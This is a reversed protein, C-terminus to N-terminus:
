KDIYNKLKHRAVYQKTEEDYAWYNDKARQRNIAMKKYIALKLEKESAGLEDRYGDVMSLFDIALEFRCIGVASIYMDSLEELAHNFDIAKDFEVLEQMFREKQTKALTRKFTSKHWVLISEFTEKM